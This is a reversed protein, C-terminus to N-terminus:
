SDMNFDSICFFVTHFLNDKRYDWGCEQDSVVGFTMKREELSQLLYIGSDRTIM